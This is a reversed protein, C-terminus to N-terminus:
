PESKLYRKAIKEFTGPYLIRQIILSHSSSYHPLIRFSQSFISEVFEPQDLGRQSIEYFVDKDYLQPWGSDLLNWLSSPYRKMPFCLAVTELKKSELFLKSCTPSSYFDNLFPDDLSFSSKGLTSDITLLSLFSNICELKVIDNTIKFLFPRIDEFLVSKFPDDTDLLGRKPLRIKAFIIFYWEKFCLNLESLYFRKMNDEIDEFLDEEKENDDDECIYPELHGSKSWGVAGDEGFRRCELDWFEKFSDLKRPVPYSAVSTPQFINFEILGQFLAVARETYGSQFLLSCARKFLHLISLENKYNPATRSLNKIAEIYIDLVDSVTFKASSTQRFDIYSLWIIYSYPFKHLVEKWKNEVHQIQNLEQFSRMYQVWISDANSDNLKTFAKECISIKKENIFNM